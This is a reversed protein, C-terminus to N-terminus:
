EIKNLLDNVEADPSPQKRKIIELVIDSLYPYDVFNFNYEFVFKSIESLVKNLKSKVVQDSMGKVYEKKDLAVINRIAANLGENFTKFNDLNDKLTSVLKSQQKILNVQSIADNVQPANFKNSFLNLASFYIELETIIQKVDTNNGILQKDRQVSKISSSHILDDFSNNKYTYVLQNLVENRGNDKETVADKKSKEIITKTEDEKQIIQKKLLIISDSKAIITTEITKKDSKYKEFSSLEKKFNEISDAYKKVAAHHNATLQKNSIENTAIIKLLSDIRLEVTKNAKKLSDIELAQYVIKDLANDQAYVNGFGSLIIFLIIIKKMKIKIPKPKILINILQLVKKM